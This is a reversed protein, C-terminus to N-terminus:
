RSLGAAVFRMMRKDDPYVTGGSNLIYAILSEERVTEYGMGALLAAVEVFKTQIPEKMKRLEAEAAETQSTPEAAIAYDFLVLGQSMEERISRLTEVVAERTLYYTVGMWVFVTRLNPNLGAKRLEAMFGQTEFDCPVYRVHDDDYVGKVRERKRAQTGPLDVEFVTVGTAKRGAYSDMGAGLLVVQSPAYDAVKEETWIQRYTFVEVSGPPFNALIPDFMTIQDGVIAAAYADGTGTAAFVKARCAATLMSTDKM